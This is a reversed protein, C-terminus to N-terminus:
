QTVGSSACWLWRIKVSANRECASGRIRVFTPLYFAKIASLPHLPGLPCLLRPGPQRYGREFTDVVDVRDVPDVGDVTQPQLKKSAYM